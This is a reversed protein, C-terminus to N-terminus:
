HFPLVASKDMVNAAGSNFIYGVRADLCQARAAPSYSETFFAGFVRDAAVCNVMMTRRETTFDTSSVVYSHLCAAQHFALTNVNNKVVDIRVALQELAKDLEVASQKTEVIVIGASCILLSDVEYADSGTVILARTAAM